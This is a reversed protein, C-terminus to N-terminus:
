FGNLRRKAEEWKPFYRSLMKYFKPSHNLHKLHCLEHVIVYDICNVPAKVLNYNFSITGLRTCSGWRKELRKFLVKNVEIKEKESIYQFKVFRNSIIKIAWSMYWHDVLEKAQKKDSRDPITLVLYKGILRVKSKGIKVKLRYQRGLYFVNEGSVYERETEVKGIRSYKRIQKQIWPAKEEVKKLIRNYAAGEPAIVKVSQNPHVEVGLTKRSSYHLRFKIKTTGYHIESDHFVEKM